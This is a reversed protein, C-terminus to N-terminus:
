HQDDITGTSGGGGPVGHVHRGGGGTTHTHPMHSHSSGGCDANNCCSSLQRKPHSAMDDSPTSYPAGLAGDQADEASDAASLSRRFFHCTGAHCTGACVTHTHPTHSHPAHTTRLTHSACSEIILMGGLLSREGGTASAAITVQGQEDVDFTGDVEELALMDTWASVVEEM